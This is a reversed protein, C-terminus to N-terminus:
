QGVRLQRRVVRDVLAERQELLVAQRAMAEIAATIGLHPRVQIHGVVGGLIEAAIKELTVDAVRLAQPM